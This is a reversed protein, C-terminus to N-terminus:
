SATVTASLRERFLVTEMRGILLTVCAYLSSPSGGLLGKLAKIWRKINCATVKLAIVLCVKVWRRVKLKGIGHARKL